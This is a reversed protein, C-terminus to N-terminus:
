DLSGVVRGLTTLKSPRVCLPPGNSKSHLVFISTQFCLTWLRMGLGRVLRPIYLPLTNMYKKCPVVSWCQQHACWPPWVEEPGGGQCSPHEGWQGCGPLPVRPEAGGGAAASSGGSWAGQQSSFLLNSCFVWCSNLCKSLGIHCTHM